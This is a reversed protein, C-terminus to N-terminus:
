LAEAVLLTVGHQDYLAVEVPERAVYRVDKQLGLAALVAEGPRSRGKLVDCVYAPTVGAGAAWASQGGAAKCASRLRRVVDTERLARAV